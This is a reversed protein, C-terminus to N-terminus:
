NDSVIIEQENKYIVYGLNSKPPKKIFKRQTYIVGAKTNKSASSYKKALKCCEYITKEDPQKNDVVKLLIHSGPTNQTHFWYDDGSSLKSIILDNQRNNKGIYVRFGNIELQEVTINKDQKPTNQKNGIEECESLIEYLSQIDDSYEITYLIQELYDEMEKSQQALIILKERSNKSKSYLQYYRQSNEKLTLKEDLPINIEKEESWDYVTISKEYDNNNYLNSIILDAYKKYKSANDKKQIQLNLKETSSKQKKYKPSVINKLRLKLSRKLITEQINSYYEDIMENVTEFLKPSDLLESYISFKGDKIAPSFEVSEMEMYDKIKELTVNKAQFLEQYGQSIGFFDSNLNQYYLQGFYRLIDTKNQKQPYIYPLTGAVERERSKESGVNHACGIINKTSNNYLIVNSYKGMLEIALCLNIKENLENYSDFYIEFIREYPPVNVKTIRFGELYKRLLMCFMPPKKPITINRRKSTEDNLFALHYVQPDINIYLKKTENKGRISFV